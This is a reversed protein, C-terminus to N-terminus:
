ISAYLFVNLCFSLLSELSNLVSPCFSLILYLCFSLFVSLSLSLRVSLCFVQAVSHICEFLCSLFVDNLVSPSFSLILYLCFSLFVSLSLSLLLSLCFPLSCFYLFISLLFVFPRFSLHVSLCFSLYVHCFCLPTLPCFFLFFSPFLSVFLM